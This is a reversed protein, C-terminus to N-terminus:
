YVNDLMPERERERRLVQFSCKEREEMGVRRRMRNKFWEKDRNRDHQVHLQNEGLGEM